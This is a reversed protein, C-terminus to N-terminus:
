PRTVALHTSQILLAWVSAKAKVECVHVTVSLMWKLLVCYDLGPTTGTFCWNFFFFFFLSLFFFLFFAPPIPGPGHVLDEAGHGAHRLWM